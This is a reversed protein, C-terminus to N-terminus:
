IILNSLEWIPVQKKSSHIENNTYAWGKQNHGANKLAIFIIENKLPVSVNNFCLNVDKKEGSYGFSAFISNPSTKDINIFANCVKKDGYSVYSNNLFEHISAEDEMNKFNIEFDRTMRPYINFETNIFNDLLSKHNSFRWYCFPNSYSEQTLGTITWLEDQIDIIKFIREFVLDYIKLAEFFHDTKDTYWNPNSGDIFESNLFYHHQIHALGNMFFITLDLKMTKSKRLSYMALFYDFLAALKARDKKIFSSISLFIMKIHSINTPIGVLLMLGLISKSSLKLKANENVIEKLAHSVLKCNIGGKVTDETWPDPIYVRFDDSKKLNMAGFVGVNNGDNAYNEVFNAHSKKLCDGLNFTKHEAYPLNTYFSYWQIWPELLHYESESSTEIFNSEVVKKLSELKYKSIYKKILDFNAENLQVIFKKKQM